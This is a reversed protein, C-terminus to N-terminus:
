NNYGDDNNNNIYGAQSFAMPVICATSLLVRFLARPLLPVSQSLNLQAMKASDPPALGVAACNSNRSTDLLLSISIGERSLPM